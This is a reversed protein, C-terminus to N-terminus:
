QGAKQQIRRTMESLSAAADPSDLKFDSVIGAEKMAHGFPYPYVPSVFDIRGMDLQELEAVSLGACTTHEADGLAKANLQKLRGEEQILRAMKSDFVCYSRKHETCVGLVKESCYKGVYHALYNLKAKGLAKDEERCLDLHIKDAWGKHSCCDILNAIWIKCQVPHGAFLSAQTKSFERGAEAATALPAIAKGFDENQSPTTDVCNGDACFVDKLCVAAKHCVNEECRYVQSYLACGIADTRECHSSLQFCGKEKQLRCEDVAPSSCSYIHEIEWCDRLLPVGDIIKTSNADLCQQNKLQCLSGKDELSVCGNDWTETRVYPKSHADITLAVQVPYARSFHKTINLIMLGNNLCSPLEVVSIWSVSDQNNLIAHVTATMSECPKTFRIPNTLYGGATNTMVGTVLNVTVFGSWKQPVVFYFDARQNITEAAMTVKRKKLCREDPLQRSRYCIEDHAKVECIEKADTCLGHTMAYSDKEILQSQKIAESNKNIEFTTKGFNDSVTKGGVDNKLAQTAATSLDIKEHETGLYFHAEPPTSSYDKFTTEPHFQNIADRMQSSLSKAYDKSQQFDYPTSNAFVTLSFGLSLVLVWNIRTM